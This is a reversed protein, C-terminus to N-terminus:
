TKLAPAISAEDDWKCAGGPGEDNGGEGRGAEVNGSAESVPPSVQLYSDISGAERCGDYTSAIM